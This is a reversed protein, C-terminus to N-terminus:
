RREDAYGLRDAHETVLEPLDAHQADACRRADRRPRALEVVRPEHAPSAPRADDVDEEGSLRGARERLDLVQDALLVRVPQVRRRGWVRAEVGAVRALQDALRGVVAAEEGRGELGDERG